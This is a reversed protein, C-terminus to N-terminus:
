LMTAKSPNGKDSEKVPNGTKQIKCIGEKPVAVELVKKLTCPVYVHQMNALIYDVGM